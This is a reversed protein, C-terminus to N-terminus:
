RSPTRVTLSTPSYCPTQRGPLRPCLILAVADQFVGLVGPIIEIRIHLPGYGRCCYCNCGSSLCRFCDSIRSGLYCGRNYSDSLTCISDRSINMRSSGIEYLRLREPLLHLASQINHSSSPSVQQSVAKQIARDAPVGHGSLVRSRIPSNRPLTATRGRFAPNEKTRLNNIRREAGDSKTPREAECPFPRM